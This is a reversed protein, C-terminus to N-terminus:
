KQDIRIQDYFVVCVCVSVCARVPFDRCKLITEASLPQCKQEAIIWVVKVHLFTITSKLDFIVLFLSKKKQRNCDRMKYVIDSSMNMYNTNGSLLDISITYVAEAWNVTARPQTYM